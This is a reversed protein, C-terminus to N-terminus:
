DSQALAHQSLATVMVLTVSCCLALRPKERVEM